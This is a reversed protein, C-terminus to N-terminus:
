DLRRHPSMAASTSPTPVLVQSVAIPTVEDLLLQVHPIFRNLAQTLSCAFGILCFDTKTTVQLGSSCDSLRGFFDWNVLMSLLTM